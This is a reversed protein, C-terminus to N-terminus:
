WCEVPQDSQIPVARLRQAEDLLRYTTERLCLVEDWIRQVGDWQQQAEAYLRQAKHLHSLFEEHLAITDM